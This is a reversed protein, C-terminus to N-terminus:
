RRPSRHVARRSAAVAVQETSVADILTQAAEILVAALVPDVDGLRQAVSDQFTELSEIGKDVRGKDFHNCSEDLTDILPRKIGNPHSSEEIRLALLAIADCPTLVDVAAQDTGTLEGDSVHLQFVYSGTAVENTVRVGTAFAEPPEGVFWTYSLPDNEVDSSQSGDLIVLGSSADLTIITPSELFTVTNEITARAIPADNVPTVTIEVTAPASEFQRDRVSFTFSDPGFYDPDPTYTPSHTFGSLTGHAPLTLITFFLNDGDPDSARLSILVNSDEQVTVFQSIATPPRNSIVTISASASSAQRGQNDTAIARIQHNGAPANSWVSSFTGTSSFARAVRTTNAFFDVFSVTGDPDSAQARLLIPQRALFVQGNTPNTLTVVPPMNSPSIVTLVANSSLRAGAINTVVVTYNGANTSSVNFLTLTSNTAGPITVGNRRWRYSLPETGTAVVTFTVDAGNTVTQSQPHTVITPPTPAPAPAGILELDFSIDSSSGNVQHIEVAITNQGNVLLSPSVSQEFFTSEDPPNITATALTQYNVPGAPMNQRSVEVGNLYVIAGDDRLLRLTVNSWQAANTVVFHRRFYTTVFKNLSDPGFSVVTAEDGDGYGLQAPGSSWFVDDFGPESWATGQDSGDDLYKWESGRPIFAFGTTNTNQTGVTIQVSDSIGRGGANDVAEARLQFTGSPANSWVFNYINTSSVVRGLNTSDAFFDVFSVTGDSDTARATMLITSGAPFTSGNTPRIWTVVPVVNNSTVVTLVANSSLAFGAINSVIVSYNGANSATVSFLTLTSNTAGPLSLGNRRWRYRLPQTGTATVSFMVDSGAPVTQSQPHSIITPPTAGSAAIGVLELNFSIDSSSPNVQHIEVAITNQGSVLLTPPLFQEFFTSEDPANVTATALTQFDITGAPMNHRVIETGNLYVVAGDDRVLRLVINSWQASNTVWFHKRFYTTVYRNL